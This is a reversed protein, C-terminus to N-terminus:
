PSIAIQFIHIKLMGQGKKEQVLQTIKLIAGTLIFNIKKYNNSNIKSLCIFDQQFLLKYLYTNFLIHNANVKNIYNYATFSDTILWHVM